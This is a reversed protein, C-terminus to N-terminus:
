NQSGLSRVKEWNEETWGETYGPGAKAKSELDALYSEMQQDLQKMLEQREQDSIKKKAPAGDSNGKSAM